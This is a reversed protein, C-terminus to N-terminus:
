SFKLVECSATCKSLKERERKEYYSRRLFRYLLLLLIFLQVERFRAIIMM